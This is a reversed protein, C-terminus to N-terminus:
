PEEEEDPEGEITLDKIHHGFRSGTPYLSGAPLSYASSQFPVSAAPISTGSAAAPNAAPPGHSPQCSQARRDPDTMWLFLDRTETADM